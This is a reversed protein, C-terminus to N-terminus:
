ELGTVIFNWELEHIHAVSPLRCAVRRFRAGSASRPPDTLGPVGFPGQDCPFDETGEEHSWSPVFGLALVMALVCATSRSSGM